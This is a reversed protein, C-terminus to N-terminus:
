ETTGIELYYFLIFCLLTYKLNHATIDMISKLTTLLYLKLLCFFVHGCEQKKWFRTEYIYTQQNTTAVETNRLLYQMMIKLTAM